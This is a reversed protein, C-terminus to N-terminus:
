QRRRASVRTTLKEFDFEQLSEALLITRRELESTLRIREEVVQYFSFSVAVFAVVLVLSVVLRFTIKM